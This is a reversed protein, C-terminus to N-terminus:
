ENKKKQQNHGAILAGKVSGQMLGVPILTKKKLNRKSGSLVHHMTLENFAPQFFL